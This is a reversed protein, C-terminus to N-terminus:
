IEITLMAITNIPINTKLFYPFRYNIIRKKKNNM